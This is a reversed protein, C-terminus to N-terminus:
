FLGFLIRLNPPQRYTFTDKSFVHSVAKPDCIVVTKSGMTGPVAFAPGYKKEFEEYVIGIDPLEFLERTLGFVYSKSPPGKLHTTQHKPARLLRSIVFTAVSIPVITKIATGSPLGLCTEVAEILQTLAGM